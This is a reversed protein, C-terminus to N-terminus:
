FLPSVEELIVRINSTFGNLKVPVTSEADAATEQTCFGAHLDTHTYIDHNKEMLHAMVNEGGYTRTSGTDILAVFKEGFIEIEAHTQTQL